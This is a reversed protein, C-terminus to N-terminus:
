DRCLFEFSLEENSAAAARLLPEMISRLRVLKRGTSADQVSLLM